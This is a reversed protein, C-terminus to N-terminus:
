KNIISEIYKITEDKVFSTKEYGVGNNSMDYVITKGSELTNNVLKEIENFVGIDVNKLASTIIAEKAMHSQAMDVAVSYIGKELAVEYSGNNVGGAASMVAKIGNNYMQETIARGKASDTFSNAYQVYLTAKPNVQKLGKEFGNKYNVVAPVEFGGIFGFKNEKVTLATVMGALYGAEQENFTINTVNSPITEFSGDIIAFQQEPYAIAAKEIASSLNFGVGIILDPEMDVAIEMNSIYDADTNSELYSVKIGLEEKAKLAGKFASENFSGDHVGGKDLVMVVQKKNDHEKNTNSCGSLILSLITIVFLFCLSSFINKILQM